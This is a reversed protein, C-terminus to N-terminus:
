LRGANEAAIAIEASTPRPAHWLYVVRRGVERFGHREYLRRAPANRADVSLTLAAAGDGAAALLAGRVLVDGWGRGRFAPVLGLYNLEIARPEAGPDLLLVGVPRGDARALFWRHARGDAPGRFGDLLEAPTRDGTLEPCDLSGDYSSLLTDRFAPLDDPTIPDIAVPPRAPPPAARGLEKRMHVVATVHRVGARAFVPEDSRDGDPAFSQAVKVGRGTLWALAAALLADADDPTAARPPFLLGLAGPLAQALVAGSVGGVVFLGAPDFEGTTLLEHFRRAADDREAVPRRSALLRCAATHDAPDAPRAM